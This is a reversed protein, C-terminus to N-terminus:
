RIGTLSLELTRPIPTASLTLVDVGTRLMKIKEKHTVGFRQEEDVIVLGLSRFRVSPSLLAHTGIVIDVTGAALGDLTQKRQKPSVFRSLERIEVPFGAFRERFTQGHQQGLLTTPVLVVVQTGDFVAKAAARVAVETKGFGVDGTLVRDMPIPAEMDQKIEDIVTAQDPTEVHEFADELERQMAGDPAFATGTAHMRAAYLRILEAAIERVNARVRNKAREWEAGGLRMVNPTEGGQYKAIADVQDSPVFLEDGKAYELKVFDRKVRGGTPGPIERTVMGTYRGVGHTRHVVHDGPQLDLVADGASKRTGLRRGARRQRRPGFLDWEGLLALGLQESVFGERLASPVIEARGTAAEPPLIESSTAPVTQEALVDRLRQAPGHGPTTLVVRMGDNLLTRVHSAIRAVDGRFSEVPLADLTDGGFPSLEWTRAEVRDRLEELTAFGVDDPRHGAATEWAVELLVEAEERLKEARQALLTPDVFAIGPLRDRASPLFDPLLAPRPHVLTVLSEVGEFAIGDAVRDLHAAISPMRRSLERARDRLTQNLVLERAPDVIVQETDGISRQDAVGFERLTDVDDGWFEVRVAHDGATPFVDVIGGRVAFQGRQEVQAVREYGLEVLQDVVGDLGDRYHRDLILPARDALQPDMPQLAARIPTVVALLPEPHAEPRVLRDLVHLRRGVTAPQPSLREHPLTEWPPFLAVRGEGLLAKLGDVIAEADSTRPTVVLLPWAQEALLSLVYPRASPGVTIAEEATALDWAERGARLVASLPGRALGHDTVSRSM